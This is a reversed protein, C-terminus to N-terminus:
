VRSLLMRECLRPDWLCLLVAMWLLLSIRLSVMKWDVWNRIVEVDGVVCMCVRKILPCVYEAVIHKENERTCMWVCVYVWVCVYIYTYIHLNSKVVRLGEMKVAFLRVFLYTWAVSVGMQTICMLVYLYMVSM